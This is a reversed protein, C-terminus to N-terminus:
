LNEFYILIACNLHYKNSLINTTVLTTFLQFIFIKILTNKFENIKNETNTLQLGQVQSLINM